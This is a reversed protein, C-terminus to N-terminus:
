ETFRVCEALGRLDARSRWGCGQRGDGYGNAPRQRLADCKGAAESLEGLPDRPLEAEPNFIESAPNSLAFQHTQPLDIFRVAAGHQLGYRAAQWEPSCEAFPYFVAKKPDDPAYILLAVPPTMAEQAFLPLVSEADPPGEILIADPQLPEM